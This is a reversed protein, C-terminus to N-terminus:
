GGEVAHNQERLAAPTCAAGYQQSEPPHPKKRLTRLTHSLQVFGQFVVLLAMIPIISKLVWVLDIGGAERSGERLAWSNSVYDWSMTLIFLATPWLMFIVGFHDIWARGKPSRGRYLIDVRVHGDHRLTYALGLMFVLAYHYVIAEQLAIWGLDLLYRMLAVAFTLLVMTLTLWSILRGLHENLQDM